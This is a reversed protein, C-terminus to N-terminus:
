GGLQEQFGDVIDGSVMGLERPTAKETVRKGDVSFRVTGHILDLENYFDRFVKSMPIDLNAYLRVHEGNFNITVVIVEDGVDVVEGHDNNKAQGEM